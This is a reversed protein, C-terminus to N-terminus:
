SSHSFSARYLKPSIMFKREFARRFVDVQRYGTLDAIQQISLQSNLLIHRAQDLRLAEVFKAPPEGVQLKFKRCFNRVSMNVKDAMLEVSLDAQLNQIVWDVLDKFEEGARQQYQLPESFQSQSGLRRYPVVLFRAIEIALQTGHDNEVLKLALDIGTTIGASTAINGQEIYIADTSLKVKPYRHKFEKAYNWHTTAKKNDLAGSAALLFAGTCVSVIRRTHALQQRLWPVYQSETDADRGGAGGPILLTDFGQTMTFDCDATIQIGSEARYVRQKAAVLRIQYGADAFENALAFVELPGVVDLANFQDFLVFGITPRLAKPM